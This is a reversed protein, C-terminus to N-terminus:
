SLCEARTQCRICGEPNLLSLYSYIVTLFPLPYGAQIHPTIHQWVGESAKVVQGTLMEEEAGEPDTKRGGERQGGEKGRLSGLLKM